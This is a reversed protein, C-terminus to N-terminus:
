STDKAKVRARSTLEHEIARWREAQAHLEAMLKKREEEPYVELDRLVQWESDSPARADHFDAPPKAPPPTAAPRMPEQGTVIYPAAAGSAATSTFSPSHKFYSSAKELNKKTIRGTKLWGSVAQPTVGCHHALAARRGKANKSDKGGLAATLWARVIETDSNAQDLM